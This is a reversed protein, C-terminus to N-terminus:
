FSGDAGVGAHYDQSELNGHRSAPKAHQGKLEFLGTYGREISQDIVATPDHGAERLKTLTRLSLSRADETWAKASKRKRFAEWREWSDPPLWPPLSALAAKPNAKAQAGKLEADACLRAAPQRDGEGAGAPPLPNLNRDGEGEGEGEGERNRDRGSEPPSANSSRPAITKEDPPSEPPSERQSGVVVNRVQTKRLIESQPDIAQLRRVADVIQGKVADTDVEIGWRKANGSAGALSSLLKGIWGELAKEAVTPHYLRGDACAVWNRLVHAKVRKWTRCQSLHALMRDNNPLSAAPVQHWSEAWLALAAAREDGTGLIWTESTLLRRVELPMFPYERLDCDVPTLPEPLEAM